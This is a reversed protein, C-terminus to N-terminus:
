HNFKKVSLKYPRVLKLGFTGCVHIRIFILNRQWINGWIGDEFTEDAVMLFDKFVYQFIARNNATPVIGM